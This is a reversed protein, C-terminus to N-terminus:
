GNFDRSTTKGGHVPIDTTGSQMNIHCGQIAWQQFSEMAHSIIVTPSLSNIFIIIPIFGVIAFICWLFYRARWRKITAIIASIVTVLSAFASIISAFLEWSM